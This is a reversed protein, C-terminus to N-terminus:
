RIMLRPIANYPLNHYCTRIREGLFRNNREAQPVHEGSNSFNMPIDLNDQIPELISRFENDARIEKVYFGHQNYFQLMKDLAAYLEPSHRRALPILDRHRVPDDLGTLMPIGNVYMIDIYLILDESQELLEPPVAIEDSRVIDARRRTTKGKLTGIDPGFLTEANNIAEVTVPCNKLANMRIMNKFNELSPCGLMRYTKRAQTAEEVQRKTFGERNKKVTTVVNSLGEEYKGTRKKELKDLQHYYKATPTYAYLRDPTHKFKVIGAETYVKFANEENTDMTVRYKEAVHSLGFINAMQKPDYWAEGFGLVDGKKMVQVVGGNTTMRLPQESKRINTLMDKNKFTAKITSASDLLIVENLDTTAPACSFLEKPKEASLKKKQKSALSLEVEQVTLGQVRAQFASWGSSRQEENESDSTQEDRGRSRGRGSRRRGSSESRRNADNGAQSEDDDNDENESMMNNVARNIAWENRPIEDRKSCKDSTHGKKGCCYCTVQRSERGRQALNTETTATSRDDDQNQREDRRKKKLDYYRQDIKHNSLVDVADRVTEPYQDNKMSYQSIYGRMLTGYKNKDATDMLLVAMARDFAGDKMKAKKAPDNENRYNETHEVFEDLFKKGIHSKVIDRQQKFRKVFDLISEDDFQRMTILRRLATWMSLYPYQARVTDQTLTKIAKLLEIPDNVIKSAFDPHEEIRNEMTKSCYQKKIVSYAKKLNEELKEKRKNFRKIEDQFKLEYARDERERIKDNSESSTNLVPEYQDLDIVEEDELSRAVDFGQEFTRQVYQVLSEKVTAFTHYKLIGQAQPAFKMELQQRKNSNNNGRGRGHSRGRSRSRNRWGRGRGGGRSRSEGDDRGMVGV